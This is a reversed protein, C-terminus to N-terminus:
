KIWLPIGRYYNLMQEQYWQLLRSQLLAARSQLLTVTATQVDIASAMGEEYKRVTLRVALRDADVKRALKSCEVRGSNCDALAEVILRQLDTEQQQLKDVASRWRNRQVRVQSVQDLRNFIPFSLSAMLYEGRNGKFQERFGRSQANGLTKNYSTSIGAGVSLTPLWSGRASRLAFRAARVEYEAQKLLPYHRRALSFVEEGSLAESAPVAETSLSDLWLSDGMPYNMLKKLTLVSKLLLNQQRTVEYDDAALTAEMQAVDAESKTGIELMVKTQQLLMESEKRKDGAIAVAGQCYLVDMCQKMVTQAVEDKKAEVGMRGMWVRAQAARLDNYRTLGDFVPVSAQLNYGNYFTNVNTYTNTEPDVARGFNYQGSLSAGVSPLFSGISRLREARYDDYTLQQQKVDHSHELAYHM